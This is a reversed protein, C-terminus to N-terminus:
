VDVHLRGAKILDITSIHVNFQDALVARQGIFPRRLARKIARVDDPTLKYQACGKHWKKDRNNNGRTDWKLNTLRNCGEDGNLHRCEFGPPCSGVFAELVLHHVLRSNGKGLSVTLHGATARGPKLLRGKRRSVYRGACMIERDLSRVRGEDSVEYEGEHGVVPLWREM